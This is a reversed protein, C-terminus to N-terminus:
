ELQRRHAISYHVAVVQWTGDTTGPIAFVTARMALPTKGKRVWRVTAAAYGYTKTRVETPKGDLEFTLKKWGGLLKKAAATGVARESSETGLVIVAPDDKIAAALAVPDTLLATLPGAATPAVISSPEPTAAKAPPPDDLHLAVATWADGSRVFLESARLSRKGKCKALAPPCDYHSYSHTLEAGLWIVDATGGAVITRVKASGLMVESPDLFSNDGGLAKPSVYAHPVLVLADPALTAILEKAGSSQMADAQTDLLQKARKAPPMDEASASGVGLLVVCVLSLRM